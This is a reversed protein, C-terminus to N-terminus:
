NLWCAAGFFFFGEDWKYAKKLKVELGMSWYCVRNEWWAISISIYFSIILKILRQRSGIPMCAAFYTGVASSLVLAPSSAFSAAAATDVDDPIVLVRPLRTSEVRNNDLLMITGCSLSLALSFRSVRLNAKIVSPGQELLQTYNGPSSNHM